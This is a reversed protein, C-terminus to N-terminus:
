LAMCKVYSSGQEFVSQCYAFVDVQVASALSSTFTIQLQENGLFKRHGLLLGHSLAECINSSFAWAYVNSYNNIVTGALNSGTANESTYSSKSYFLNLYYLALNSPIPQGGVCNSSTSDLIAFNSIATFQYINNQTLGTTPRVVFFLATINGVFPTLVVTTQTVGSQIAFPSYRLNHYFNQEPKKMMLNLRNTAVDSPIKLVKVIVNAYNITATPTGTLTSQNVINALQDMYIRIQLNHSDTLIPIHCENYFTRLKVYYNQGSTTAMTNRQQLSSYSGEADNILVRDEDENFFQQAIFNSAPYLTDITVNNVVLEIKTTWFVAPSFNPYNTVSGTLGGIASVNFNLVLDSIICNREKIDFIFYSGFNPQSTAPILVVESKLNSPVTIAQRSPLNLGLSTNRSQILNSLHDTSSSNNSM